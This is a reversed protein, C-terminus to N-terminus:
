FLGFSKTMGNGGPLLTDLYSKPDGYDPGWGGNNGINFNMEAGTNPYYTANLWDKQTDCPVINVIVVGGLVSEVSQKLAQDQNKFSDNGTFSAIDLYVPNEASIDYGQAKLEEIATNLEAVAVEPNYWGDYGTGLGTEEDFSKIHSGDAELQRQRITGYATGAPFTVSEGNIDVTVEKTLYVFNGPVYANIMSNYKLDEGKRQAVMTARDISYQVARRFHVNRMAANAVVKQDETMTSVAVNADNFNAYAQRNVNM